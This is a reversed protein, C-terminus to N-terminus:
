DAVAHAIRFNGSRAIVSLTCATEKFPDIRQRQGALIGMVRQVFFGALRIVHGVRRSRCSGPGGPNFGIVARQADINVFFIM